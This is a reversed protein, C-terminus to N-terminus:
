VVLVIGRPTATTVRALAAAYLGVQRSYVSLMGHPDDDTKFDVVRWAGEHEYALDVVGELLRGDSLTLTVPVERRCKGAREATRAAALLPHALVRAALAAAASMEHDPAGLIRGELTALARLMTVDADLPATALVAHVLTGFRRGRPREGDRPLEIVEVPPLEAVGAPWEGAHAFETVTRIQLSPSSGNAIATARDLSWTDYATRGESVVADGADKAILDERRLGFPPDADLKLASPGWWVVRYASHPLAEARCVSGSALVRHEQNAPSFGQGVHGDSAPSFGQGVHESSAPSVSQLVHEDSAPSVSQLVHEDSAPSFGQGVHERSAPSFGQGVPLEYMGPRVTDARPPEGDPRTRVTDKGFEPCGPAPQPDRRIDRPPYIAANLTGFWGDYECDGIAPLVLVDRARTAAVYALRVGEARERAVEVAEHDLLDAPSCGALPMACLNRAQDIYRSADRRSLKCTIDALIVVPFELGKAKHVTMLRVGDSGEELVPAEASASRDSAERLADVFGRFSIGGDAEYQRALEVVQLVNALVRDGAPRMVFSVHARTHELLRGVTEAAPRHNRGAHLTRLLALADGVPRVRAPLDEPVDFPHFRHRPHTHWYELLTEESIAFLSGRLTAYVNLADEPWEVAALAARLTEVEERDHFSRGGVLLHPVGRAELADVYPRTVDTRMNIFRRFLICVHRPEVPVEAVTGDRRETVTWGSERVLWHVWAGVADPLSKEIPGMAVNRIGYPDPVPLVILSPQPDRIPEPSRAEPEPAQGPEHSEAPTQSGTQFESARGPGAILDPRSGPAQLRSGGRPADAAIPHSRGLRLENRHPALAVYDAQLSVDDRTMAPGFAANVAHQITPVTRFNTRLHVRRAGNRQVLLDCVEQYIGVDARRFRYISQKPDGVVFLAGRRIPVTRWDPPSTRAVAQLGEEAGAGAALRPRFGPAQLRSGQEEAGQEGALLLLIEAQLPDTDQFEDVLIYKFRGQFARRVPACDRVLDRAKLLLDLFDLAGARTKMDGYRDVCALLERQLLCALDADAARQFATLSAKLAEYAQLLQQRTAAKGYDPKRGKRKEIEKLESKVVRVLIAELLDLNEPGSGETPPASGDERGARRIEAALGRLPRTSEFLPDKDWSPNLTLDAFACLEAVCRAIAAERDFPDRRWPTRLDRWERLDVAAKRLRAVPGEEEDAYPSWAPPLRRLARRVGEAPDELGQQFWERFARDFLREASPETLVEFGPDVGAEVPRERLLDACFGHITSVHAEELRALADDLLATSAAGAAIESRAKELETRIRLKLEGAAKETFTVAVIDRIRARGTAVLRVIRAVLETTKGTGAAAEVVLTDDLANRILDRDVADDLVPTRLLTM